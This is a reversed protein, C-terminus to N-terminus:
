PSGTIVNHAVEQVPAGREVQPSLRDRVGNPLGHTLATDSCGRLEAKVARGLISFYKGQWGNAADDEGHCIGMDETLLSFGPYSEPLVSIVQILGKEGHPMESFDYPNRIIIDSFGSCHLYGNANEIFISGTQEVMGYFNYVQQLGFQQQLELKFVENTVSLETMKKWGGSHFLIAKSLDVRRKEALQLLHQWVIFTFGFLLMPQGNHKDLFANVEPSNLEYDDDLLYTHQKGFVSLGLIGAGRASFSERNRLVSKSDIILMPLREQGIISTIIHALAATQQAATQQDLYIKSVQQGTTGSSTLIKFIAADAISKLEHNKFVSVPLFPIHAITASDNQHFGAAQLVSAYGPSQQQHHLTLQQLMPLLLAEKDRKNLAFPPLKFLPEAIM